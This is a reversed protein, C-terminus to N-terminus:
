VTGHLALEPQHYAHTQKTFYTQTLYLVSVNRHHSSKTFLNAVTDNTESMLDDIILLVPRRGDFKAFDPLGEHFKVRSYRSFLPQFEGYCYWIEEPTPEIMKSGNEVLIFVFRTKGCGTSGAVIATFPHQLPLTM